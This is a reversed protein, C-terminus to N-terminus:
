LGRVVRFRGEPTLVGTSLRFPPDLEVWMREAEALINDADAVVVVTLPAGISSSKHRHARDRLREKLAVMTRAYMVDVCVLESGKAAIYDYPGDRYSVPAVEYDSELLWRAVAREAEIARSAAASQPTMPVMPAAVREENRVEAVVDRSAGFLELLESFKIIHFSCGGSARRFEDVLEFRPYLPQGESRHWWDAKEEGSVFVVSTKRTAGIELITLWILFDGIGLDEKSEDKYGPPIKHLFRHLHDKQIQERSKSTDVVVESPFLRGYLLSVPDNWEWAKIRDVLASISKHYDSILNDLREEVARLRKYEELGELMPYAGQNYKSSQSKRRTLRQFLESLKTTRNRAFERAVQAPIALRRETLLRTYTADIQALTQSGIGYPVLLANTDLVIIAKERVDQLSSARATFVAAADPFVSEVIFADTAGSRAEDSKSESKQKPKSNEASV